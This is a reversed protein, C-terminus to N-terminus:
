YKHNKKLNKIFLFILFEYFKLELKRLEWKKKM